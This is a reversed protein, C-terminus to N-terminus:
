TRRKRISFLGIVSFGLLAIPAPLPVTSPTVTASTFTIDDVGYTSVRGDDESTAQFILEVSQGAFASLDATFRHNFLGSTLDTISLLNPDFFTNGLAAGSETISFLVSLDDNGDRFLLALGEASNQAGNPFAPDDGASLLGADFTLITDTSSMVFSQTVEVALDRFARSFSDIELYPNGANDGIRRVPDTNTNEGFISVRRSTYGNLGDSFDGNVFPDVSTAHVPTMTMMPLATALALVALKSM